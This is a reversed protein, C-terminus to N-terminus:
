KIINNKKNYTDIDFCNKIFPNDLEQNLCDGYICYQNIKKHFTELGCFEYKDITIIWRFSYYKSFKQIVSVFNNTERYNLKCKQIDEIVFIIKLSNKKLFSDYEKISNYSIGMFDALQNLINKELDNTNCKMLNIFCPISIRNLELEQRLFYTELLRDTVYRIYSNIFHTKGSGTTGTVILVKHFRPKSIFERIKKKLEADIKEFDYLMVLKEFTIMIEECMEDSSICDLLANYCTDCYNKEKKNLEHIIAFIDDKWSKDFIDNLKTIINEITNDEFVPELIDIHNICRKLKTFINVILRDRYVFVSEQIQKQLSYKEALIPIRSCEKSFIEVWKNFQEDTLTLNMTWEIQKQLNYGMNEKRNNEYTEYFSNMVVRTDFEAGMYAYFEEMTSSITNLIIEDSTKLEEKDKILKEIVDPIHEIMFIGIDKIIDM